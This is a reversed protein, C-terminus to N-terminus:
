PTALDYNTFNIKTPVIPSRQLACRNLNEKKLFTLDLDKIKNAPKYVPLDKTKSIYFFVFTLFLFM